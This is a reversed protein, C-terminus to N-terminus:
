LLAFAVITLTQGPYEREEAKEKVLEKVEKKYVVHPM